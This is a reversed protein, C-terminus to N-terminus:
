PNEAPKKGDDGEMFKEISHMVSSVPGEMHEQPDTTKVTEADPKISSTKLDKNQAPEYKEEAM